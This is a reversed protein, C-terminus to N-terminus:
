VSRSCITIKANLRIVRTAVGDVRGEDKEEEENVKLTGQVRSVTTWQEQINIKKAM